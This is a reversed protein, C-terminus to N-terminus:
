WYEKQVNSILCVYYLMWSQRTSNMTVEYLFIPDLGYAVGIALVEATALLITGSLYNKAIKATLDAGLTSLYLFKPPSGLMELIVQLRESTSNSPDPPPHGILMSLTGAKAAPVGGSVPADLYIGQGAETL